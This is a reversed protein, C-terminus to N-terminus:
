DYQPEIHLRSHKFDITVVFHKLVDYGLIGRSDKKNIDRISGHSAGQDVFSKQGEAPVTIIVNELTYPGIELMPLNFRQTGVVVGNAGIGRAKETGYEELWGFRLADFRRMLIGSSNGTDLMLWTKYEDNLNVEVIPHPAGRQRKMKVNAVKRLDLSEHDILRLRSQPYDIQLIFDQFFPLGVLLDFSRIRMPALQDLEFQAGFMGVQIDHVLNVRRTGGLGSLTVQGGTGYEGEHRELFQESIGNGASGSDLIATTAEGNLTVPITIHGREKEFPIWQSVGAPVVGSWLVMAVCLYYRM